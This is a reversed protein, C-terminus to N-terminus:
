DKAKRSDFKYTISEKFYYLLDKEEWQLKGLLDKQAKSGLGLYEYPNLGRKALEQCFQYLHTPSIPQISRQEYLDWKSGGSTVVGKETSEIHARLKKKMAKLIHELRDIENALTQAAQESMAGRKDTTQTSMM